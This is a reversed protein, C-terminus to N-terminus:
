AFQAEKVKLEETQDVTAGTIRETTYRVFGGEFLWDAKGVLKHLVDPEDPSYFCDGIHVKDKQQVPVYLCDDEFYQIAKGRSTYKQRDLRDGRTPMFIARVKRMDSKDPNTFVSITRVLEPFASLFNGYVGM